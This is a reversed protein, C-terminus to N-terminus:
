NACVSSRRFHDCETGPRDPDTQKDALTAGAANMVILAPEVKAAEPASPVGTTQPAPTLAAHDSM